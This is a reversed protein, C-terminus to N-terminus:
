AAAEAKAVRVAQGTASKKSAVPYLTIRKGPWTAFDDGGCAMVLQRRVTVGTVGLIKPTEVFAIDFGENKRGDTAVFEVGAKVSKITLTVRKGNLSEGYIYPIGDMISSM